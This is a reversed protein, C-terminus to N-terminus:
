IPLKREAIRAFLAVGYPIAADNFNYAPNHAPVSNEGNGLNIFAGPVREMMFGFDDSSMTSPSNRDLQSEGVLEAAADAIPRSGYTSPGRRALNKASM